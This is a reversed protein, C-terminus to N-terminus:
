SNYVTMFDQLANEHRSMHVVDMLRFEDSWFPNTLEEHRVLQSAAAVLFLPAVRRGSNDNVQRFWVDPRARSPIMGFIPVRVRIQTPKAAAETPFPAPQPSVVPTTSRSNNRSVSDVKVDPKTGVPLKWVPVQVALRDTRYLCEEGSYGSGTMQVPPNVFYFCLFSGCTHQLTHNKVHIPQWLVAFWSSVAFETNDAHLLMAFEPNRCLLQIQQFLPMRTDPKDMAFWCISKSELNPKPMTKFDFGSLLPTYYVSSDMGKYPSLCVKERFTIKVGYPVDFLKWASMLSFRRPNVTAAKAPESEGDTNTPTTREEETSCWIEPTISDLFEFINGFTETSSPIGLWDSLSEPIDSSGWKLEYSPAQAPPAFPRPAYYYGENSGSYGASDHAM